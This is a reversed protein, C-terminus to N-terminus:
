KEIMQLLRQFDANTWGAYYQAGIGDPDQGQALAYIDNAIRDVGLPNSKLLEQYKQSVKDAVPAPSPPQPTEPWAQAFKCTARVWAIKNM